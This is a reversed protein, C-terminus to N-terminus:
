KTSAPPPQPSLPAGTKRRLEADLDARLQLLDVADFERFTSAVADRKEEATYKATTVLLEIVFARPIRFAPRAGSASPFRHCKAAFHEELYTTQMGTLAAVEAVRFQPKDPVWNFSLTAAAAAKRVNAPVAPM